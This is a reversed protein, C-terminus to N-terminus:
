HAPSGWPPGNIITATPFYYSAGCSVKIQAPSGWPPGFLSYYDGACSCLERTSKSRLILGWRPGLLGDSASRLVFHDPGSSGKWLCTKGSNFHCRLRFRKTGWSFHSFVNCFACFLDFVAWKPGKKPGNRLSELILHPTWFYGTRFNSELTTFISIM